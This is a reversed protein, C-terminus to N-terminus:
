LTKRITDADAFGNEVIDLYKVVRNRGSNKAHYLAQDAQELLIQKHIDDEKGMACLGLSITVDISGAATKFPRSEVSVRLKEAILRAENYSVNDLIVAFEEGGYRAVTDLDRIDKKLRVALEKLVEDGIPHGYNDNIGKFNDADIMIVALSGNYERQVRSIRNDLVEQFVRHNLLGTLGDFRSMEDVRKHQLANDLAPAMIDAIARLATREESNFVDPEPSVAAVVALLMRAGNEKRMVIPIAAFSTIKKLKEKRYFFPSPKEQRSNIVIEIGRLDDDGDRIDTIKNATLESMRRMLLGLQSPEGRLINVEELGELTKGRKVVVSLGDTYFFVAVGSCKRIAEQVATLAMGAIEELNLTRTLNRAYKAIAERSSMDSTIRGLLEVMDMARFVLMGYEDLWKELADDMVFAGADESDFYLVCLVPADDESGNPASERQSRYIVKVLLSGTVIDDSNYLSSSQGAARADSVCLVGGRQRAIHVLGKESTFRDERLGDKVLTAGSRIRYYGPDDPIIIVGTRSGFVRCGWVLLNHLFKDEEHILYQAVMERDYMMTEDYEGDEKLREMIGQADKHHRDIEDKLKRFRRQDRSMIWSLLGSFIIFAAAWPVLSPDKILLIRGLSATALFSGPVWFIAFRRAFISVPFCLFFILIVVPLDSFGVQIAVAVICFLAIQLHLSPRATDDKRRKITVLVGSALILFTLAGLISYLVNSRSELNVPYMLWGVLGVTLLGHILEPYRGIKEKNV